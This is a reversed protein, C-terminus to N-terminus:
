PCELSLYTHTTQNLPMKEFNIKLKNERMYCIYYLEDRRFILIM